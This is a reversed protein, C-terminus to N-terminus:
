IRYGEFAAINQTLKVFLAIRDAANRNIQVIRGFFRDSRDFFANILIGIGKQKVQRIVDAFFERGVAVVDTDVVIEGIFFAARIFITDLQIVNNKGDFLTGLRNRSSVTREEDRM